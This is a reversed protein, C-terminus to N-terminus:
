LYRYTIYVVILVNFWDMFLSDVEMKQRNKIRMKEIENFALGRRKGARGVLLPKNKKKQALSHENM